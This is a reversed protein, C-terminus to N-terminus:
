RRTESVKRATLSIESGPRLPLAKQAGVRFTMAVFPPTQEPEVLHHLLLQGAKQM